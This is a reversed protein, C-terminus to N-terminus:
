VTRTSRAHTTAIAGMTQMPHPPDTADTAFSPPASEENTSAPRARCFWRGSSVCHRAGAGLPLQRVIGGPLQARSVSQQAVSPEFRAIHAHDLATM